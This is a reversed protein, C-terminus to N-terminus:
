AMPSPSTLCLRAPPPAAESSAPRQRRRLPAAGQRRRAKGDKSWAALGSEPRTGHAPLNRGCARRRWPPLPIKRGHFILWNIRGGRM